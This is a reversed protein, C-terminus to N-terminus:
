MLNKVIKHWGKDNIYPNELNGLVDVILPDQRKRQFFNKTCSILHQKIRPIGAERHLEEISINRRGQKFAIRLADNQLIQLKDMLTGTINIWCPTGYEIVPRVLSLYLKVCQSPTIMRKWKMIRILNLKKQCRTLIGENGEIQEKFTLHEDIIVGLFREHTRMEIEKGCIRVKVETQVKIKRGPKQFVIIKCKSPNIKLRWKNSWKEIMNAVLQLRTEITKILAATTWFKMDDAYQSENVQINGECRLDSTYVNFLFPSLIGGQPVGAQITKVDSVADEVRVNFSRDKLYSDILLIDNNSFGIKNMKYILGDHWATM